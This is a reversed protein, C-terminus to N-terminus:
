ALSIPLSRSVPFFSLTQFFQCTVEQVDTARSVNAITTFPGLGDSKTRFDFGFGSSVYEFCMDLAGFFAFKDHLRDLFRGLDAYLSV